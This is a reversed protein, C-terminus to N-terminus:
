NWSRSAKKDFHLFHQNGPPFNRHVLFGKDSFL